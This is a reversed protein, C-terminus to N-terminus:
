KNIKPTTWVNVKNDSIEQASKSHEKFLVAGILSFLIGFTCVIFIIQYSFFVNEAQHTSEIIFGMLYQFFGGGIFNFINLSAIASGAIELPFVTAPITLFICTIGYTIGLFTLLALLQYSDLTAGFISMLLWYLLSLIIGMLLVPKKRKVKDTIIGALPFAVMFGISIFMFFLSANAKSMGYVDM